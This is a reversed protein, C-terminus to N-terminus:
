ITYTAVSISIYLHLLCILTLNPFWILQFVVLVDATMLTHLSTNVMSFQSIEGPSVPSHFAVTSWPMRVHHCTLRWYQSSTQPSRTTNKVNLFPLSMSKVAMNQQQIYYIHNLRLAATTTHTYAHEGTFVLRHQERHPSTNKLGNM